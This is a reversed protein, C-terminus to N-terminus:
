QAHAEGEPLDPLCDPSWQGAFHAAFDHLLRVLVTVDLGHHLGRVYDLRMSTLAHVYCAALLDADGPRMRGSAMLARFLGTTRAIRHAQEGAMLDAVERSRYQEQSLVIWLRRLRGERWAELSRTIDRELLAALPLRESFDSPNGPPEPPRLYVGMEAFVRELLARKAHYHNYFSSERIGVERCIERISVADYGRDGFLRLSIEFIRERTDISRPM